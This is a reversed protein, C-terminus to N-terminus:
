VGISTLLTNAETKTIKGSSLASKVLAVKNETTLYSYGFQNYLSKAASGLGGYAAELKKVSEPTKMQQTTNQSSNGTSKVPSASKKKTGSTSKKSTGTTKTKVANAAAQQLAALKMALAESSSIGAATLTSSDPMIGSSLMSTALSYAYKKSESAQDADFEAQWNAQTQASSKAATAAEAQRVYENYLAQSLESDGSAEAQDAANKYAVTLKQQELANESLANAQNTNITALNNQLAASTALAAQGSTGTNMGRSVAYENFSQRALDNQAAAENKSAAYTQPIKDAAAQLGATNQEYTSKLAALQKETNAAYMEKLYQATNSSDGTASSAGAVGNNSNQYLYADSAYNDNSGIGLNSYHEQNAAIKENRAENLAAVTEKSAGSSIAKEIESAYNTNANFAM